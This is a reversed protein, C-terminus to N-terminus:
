FHSLSGIRHSQRRAVGTTALVSDLFELALSSFQAFFGHGRGFPLYIICIHPVFGQLAFDSCAHDHMTNFVDSPFGYISVKASKSKGLM